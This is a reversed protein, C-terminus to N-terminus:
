GSEKETTARYEAISTSASLILANPHIFDGGHFCLTEKLGFEVPLRLM